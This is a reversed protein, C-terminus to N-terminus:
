STKLLVLPIRTKKLVVSLLERRWIRVFTKRWIAMGVAQLQAASTHEYQRLGKTLSQMCM